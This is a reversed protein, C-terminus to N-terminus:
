DTRVTVPEHEEKMSGTGLQGQANDGFCALAGDRVGCSHRAGCAILEWGAGEGVHEPRRHLRLDREESGLGLQGHEGAGWCHLEGNRLGCGHERGLAVAGFPKYCESGDKNLDITGKECPTTGICGNEERGNGEFGMPCECVYGRGDPRNKCADPSSDCDDLEQECEDVDRCQNQGAREWGEKCMTCADDVCGGTGGDVDVFTYKETDVSCGVLVLASLLLLAVRTAREIFFTETM